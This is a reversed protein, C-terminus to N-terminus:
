YSTFTFFQIFLKQLRDIDFKQFSICTSRSLIRFCSSYIVWSVMVFLGSPIYYQIIYKLTNRQLQIEVGAISYNNGTGEWFLLQGEKRLKQVKVEYDLVAKGGIELNKIITNFMMRKVDSSYSGVELNCM